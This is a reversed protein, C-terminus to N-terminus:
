IIVPWLTTPRAKFSFVYAPRGKLWEQTHDCKVIIWRGKKDATGEYIDRVTLYLASESLGQEHLHRKMWLSIERAPPLIIAGVKVQEIPQQIM